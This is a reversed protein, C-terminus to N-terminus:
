GGSLAQEVAAKAQAIIDEDDDASNEIFVLSGARDFIYVRANDFANLAERMQGARDYLFLSRFGNEQAKQRVMEPDSLMFVVCTRVQPYPALEQEMVRIDEDGVDYSKVYMLASVGPLPLQVKRKDLDEVEPLQIREGLKPDAKMMQPVQEEFSVQPARQPPPWKVGLARSSVFIGVLVGA